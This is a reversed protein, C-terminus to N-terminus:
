DNLFSDQHSYGSTKRPNLRCEVFKAVLMRDRLKNVYYKVIRREVWTLKFPVDHPQMDETDIVLFSKVHRIARPKITWDDEKLAVILQRTFERM